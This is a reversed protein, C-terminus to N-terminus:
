ITVRALATGFASGLFAALPLLIFRMVGVWAAMPMGAPGGSNSLFRDLSYPVSIMLACANVYLAAIGFLFIPVNNPRADRGLACAAFVLSIAFYISIMILPHWKILAPVGTAPGTLIAGVCSGGAFALGSYLGLRLIARREMVQDRTRQLEKELEAREGVHMQLLNIAKIRL